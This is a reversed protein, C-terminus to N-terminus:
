WKLQLMHKPDVSNEMTYIKITMKIHTIIKTMHKKYFTYNKGQNIGPLFNLIAMRKNIVKM